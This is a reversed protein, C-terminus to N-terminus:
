PCNEMGKEKISLEFNDSMILLKFQIYLINFDLQNQNM